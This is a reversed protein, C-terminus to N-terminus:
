KEGAPGAVLRGSSDVSLEDVGEYEVKIQEM